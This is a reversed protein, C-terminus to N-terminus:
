ARELYEGSRTDVKISDGENIFLPVNLVFGTKLTAPKTAGTATDGRVGPDTREIELIVAPPLEVSIPKNELFQVTITSGEVLFNIADGLNDASLPMQEYSENDMFYLLDGDQYLYQMNRNELRIDEIKEESRFTREIVNGDSLRKLKTRVYAGGKGPKVHTFGTITYLQGEVRIVLGYRFNNPYIM